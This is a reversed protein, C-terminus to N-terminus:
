KYLSLLYVLNTSTKNRFHVDSKWKLVSVEGSHEGSTGNLSGFMSGLTYNLLFESMRINHCKLIFTIHLNVLFTVGEVHFLTRLVQEKTLKNNM